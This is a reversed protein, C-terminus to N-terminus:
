DEEKLFECIEKDFEDILEELEQKREKEDKNLYSKSKLSNLELILKEREGLSVAENM